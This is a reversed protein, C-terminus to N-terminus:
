FFSSCQRDGGGGVSGGGGGGGGRKGGGGGLKVKLHRKVLPVSSLYNTKLALDVTVTIGTLFM